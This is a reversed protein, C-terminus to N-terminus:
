DLPQTTEVPTFHGMVTEARAQWTNKSLVNAINERMIELKNRHEHLDCLLATLTKEDYNIVWGSNNEEIFDGAATGTTGIVPLGYQLYEFLKIPMAFDRWAQPELFLSGIDHGAFLPELDAGSAHAIRIRDNLYPTYTTKEKEWDAARCCVTLSVFDLNRAVRFLLEINYFAGLGGVYFVRLRTGPRHILKKLVIGPPLARFRDSPILPVHGGMKLSPLYLRDVLNRYTRLDLYQFFANYRRGFFSMKKRFERFRWYIDRYFLGIPIKRKRCFSFFGFDLFPHLPLHHSESLLTPLTTNEAYLFDFKEGARIRTKLLRIQGKREKANGAVLEVTCGADRFGQIMKPVRVHFGAQARLDIAKPVHFIINM